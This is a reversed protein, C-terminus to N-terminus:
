PCHLSWSGHLKPGRSGPLPPSLVDRIGVDRSAITPKSRLMDLPLGFAVWEVVVSIRVTPTSLRAIETDEIFASRNFADETLDLDMNRPNELDEHPEQSDRAWLSRHVNM